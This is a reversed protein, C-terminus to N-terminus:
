QESDKLGYFKKANGGWVQSQESDTLTLLYRNILEMTKGYGGALECVPWDSGFVIRSAGFIEFVANLYPVFDAYNWNIWHAETVLGSIKCYVNEYNTMGKLHEFWTKIEGKKIHPKAIHDIMFLQKPFNNVFKEVFPLQDPRILIDYTFGFANLKDVGRLFEPTLMFARNPEAQLVHRFGKIIGFQRYYALREDINEATFDIWGVIGKIKDNQRSLSILFENEEESQNAQIAVCGSIDNEELEHRLQEPLFDRRLIHMDDTIWYDRSVDYIWFHQHADIKDYKKM